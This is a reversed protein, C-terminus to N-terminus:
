TEQALFCLIHITTPRLPVDHVRCKGHYLDEATATATDTVKRVSL